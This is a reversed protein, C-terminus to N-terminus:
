ITIPFHNGSIRDNYRQVRCGRIYDRKPGWWILIQGKDTNLYVWNSAFCFNILFNTKQPQVIIKQIKIIPKM